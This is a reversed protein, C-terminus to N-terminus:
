RSRRAAVGMPTVSVPQLAGSSAPDESSRHMTRSVRARARSLRVEFARVSCKAVQAAQTRTLGDWAVMLLAERELDTLDALATIMQERELLRSDAGPAHGASRELRAVRDTLDSLRGARRNQDMLTNRAVVLLWPLPDEPVVAFRRWAVLFTDAVVEQATNSDARRRVFAYVRPSLERYMAAFREQGGGSGRM